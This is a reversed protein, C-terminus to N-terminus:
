FRGGLGLGASAGVGAQGAGLGLEARLVWPGDPRLEVGALARAGVGVPVLLEAGVTVTPGWAAGPRGRWAGGVLVRTLLASDWTPTLRHPSPARLLGARAHLAWPGRGLDVGLDASAHAAGLAQAWGVLAAAGLRPSRPPPAVPRVEAVFRRTPADFVIAQVHPAAPAPGPTAAATDALHDAWTGPLGAADDLSPGDAAEPRHAAAEGVVPSLPPAARHDVVRLLRVRAVGWRACADALRSALAPPADLTDFAADLSAFLADASGPGTLDPAAPLATERGPLVAIRAHFGATSGAAAATVRHEGALLAHAGANAPRGDVWWRAGPPLAPLRLTGRGSTELQRRADLVPSRLVADGIPLPGSPLPDLLAAAQRLRLAEGPSGMAAWAAGLALQQLALPAVTGGHRALAAEGDAVAQAVARRDGTRAAADLARLAADLAEPATPTEAGVVSLDLLVDVPLLDAAPALRAVVAADEPCAAPACVLVTAAVPAALAAASSLAFLM